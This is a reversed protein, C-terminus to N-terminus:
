LKLDIDFDASATVLVSMPSGGSRSSDVDEDSTAASATPCTALTWDCNQRHMYGFIVCSLRTQVSRSFPLSPFLVIAM